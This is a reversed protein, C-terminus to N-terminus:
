APLSLHATTMRRVYSEQCGTLSHCTTFHGATRDYVYVTGETDAYARYTGRRSSFANRVNCTPM